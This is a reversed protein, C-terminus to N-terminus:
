FGRIRVVKRQQGPVAPGPNRQSAKVNKTVQASSQAGSNDTVTLTFVYQGEANVVAKADISSASVFTVISGSPRTTVAWQYATITGDVDSATGDLIISDTIAVNGDTGANVVPPINPTVDAPEVIVQMTDRNIAGQNDTVKLEFDYTGEVLGGFTPTATTKGTITFPIPGDVKNWEYASISGDADTGSGMVLVANVPLKITRDAGANSVPPINDVVVNITIDDAFTATNADTAIVRFTYTGVSLNSITTSALNPNNITGGTGSIKTWQYSVIPPSVVPIGNQLAGRYDFRTPTAVATLTTGTANLQQDAGASISGKTFNYSQFIAYRPSVMTPTLVDWANPFLEEDNNHMGNGGVIAKNRGWFYLSDNNDLAYVYYAMTNSKFLDKWNSATGIRIPPAGTPLQWNAFSWQYQGGHNWQNVKEVGNGINGIANDGIGYLRGLSDIYHITQANGAIKKIPVTLNWFPKMSTPQSYSSSGGWFGSGNVSGWVYPYGMVQSGVVDPIICGQADFQTAFVDIAPRPITKQVPTLSGNISWQWVQGNTTLVIINYGLAVKKVKMGPPSLQIPKNINGDGPYLKYYDEGVYWLSSDSRIMLNTGWRLYFPMPGHHGYVAIVDNFPNGLTDTDIRTAGTPNTEEALHTRWVYGDEDLAAIRSYQSTAIQKIKKGGFNYQVKGTSANFAIVISDTYLYGVKYENPAVQWVKLTTPTVPIAPNVTVTVNKSATAGNNDTVLRRFVHTGQTLGTVTVTDSTTNPSIAVSGPGSLRSWVGTVTGDADAKISPLTVSSVPLTITQNTGVTVTPIINSTTGGVLSTDGQRLMWQFISSPARYTGPTNGYDPGGVINPGMPSINQWNTRNPDYMTNWCCHNGGSINEYAFYASGPMSDNMSRAILHVDRMDDMTGELGFFKGKYKRAWYGWGAMGRSWTAPAGALETSRGQLCVLSTVLKMATEAGASAEYLLMASWTMAGQSLGGLHVSNRKIHYTNLLHNLVTYNERAGPWTTNSIITIIIPYHDGNGLTIKGDWGNALFYHPGYTRLSNYNTGMEVQGPMTIIAPRSATDPHNPTFMNRPRTIRMRYTLSAYGIDYLTDYTIMDNSESQAICDQMLGAIVLLSFLIRKM